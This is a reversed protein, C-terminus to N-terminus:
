KYLDALPGERDKGDPGMMQSGTRGAALNAKARDYIAAPLKVYGVEASFKAANAM